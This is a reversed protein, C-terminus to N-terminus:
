STVKYLVHHADDAAYVFHLHMLLINDHLYAHSCSVTCSILMATNSNNCGHLGPAQDHLQGVKSLQAHWGVCTVCAARSKGAQAQQQKTQKQPMSQLIPLAASVTDHVGTAQNVPRHEVHVAVLLLSQSALVQAYRYCDGCSCRLQYVLRIFINALIGPHLHLELRAAQLLTRPMACCCCQLCYMLTLRADTFHWCRGLGFLSPSLFDLVVNSASHGLLYQMFASALAFEHQLSTTVM